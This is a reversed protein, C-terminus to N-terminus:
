PFPAVCPHGTWPMMASTASGAMESVYTGKHVKPSGDYEEMNSTYAMVIDHRTIAPRVERVYAICESAALLYYPWAQERAGYCLPMVWQYESTTPDFHQTRAISQAYDDGEGKGKVTHDSAMAVSKLELRHVM